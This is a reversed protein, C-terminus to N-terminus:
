CGRMRQLIDAEQRKLDPTTDSFAKTLKYRVDSLSQRLYACAERPAPRWCEDDVWTSMGGFPVSRMPVHPTTRLGPASVGIGNPGGYADALSRGPIGMVGLPVLASGGQGTDSLYISGDYRACLFFQPPPVAPAQAPPPTQAVPEAEIMESDGTDPPLAPPPPAEDRLYMKSQKAGKACPRDQFAVAGRADVCKYATAAHLAGTMALSSVLLLTARLPRMFSMKRRLQARV